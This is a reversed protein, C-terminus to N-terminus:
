IVRNRVEIIPGIRLKPITIKSINPPSECFLVIILMSKDATRQFTAIIPKIDPIRLTVLSMRPNSSKGYTTMTM